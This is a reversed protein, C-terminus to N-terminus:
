YAGFTDDYREAAAKQTRAMAVLTETSCEAVRFPLNRRRMRQEITPEVPPLRLNETGIMIAQMRMIGDVKEGRSSASEPVVAPSVCFGYQNLLTITAPQSRDAVTGVIREANTMRDIESALDLVSDGKSASDEEYLERYVHVHGTLDFYTIIYRLADITHDAKDIPRGTPGWYYARLEKWCNPCANIDITFRPPGPRHAVWLCVFADAGGFDIGRYRHWGHDIEVSKAHIAERLMPFILGRPAQFAEEETAPFEQRFWREDGSFESAIVQRRWQLQGDTLKHKERLVIEYETADVIPKADKASYEADIFWPAFLAKFQSDRRKSGDWMEKFQGSTDIMNTTSEVLIISNPTKPVSQMISALQAKVANGDGPWKAVESLHLLNTTAGSAVHEGGATRVVAGSDHAFTIRKMNCFTPADGERLNRAARQSIEFIDQTSDVTHAVTLASCHPTHQVLFFFLTQVFTSAGMKRAKLHILRIPKGAVSQNRIATFLRWQSNNLVMPVLRGDRDKIRCAGRQVWRVYNDLKTVMSDDPLFM